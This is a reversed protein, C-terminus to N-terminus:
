LHKRSPQLGLRLIFGFRKPTSFQFASSDSFCKFGNQTQKKYLHPERYYKHSKFEVTSIEITERGQKIKILHLFTGDRVPAWRYCTGQKICQRSKFIELHGQGRLLVGATKLM